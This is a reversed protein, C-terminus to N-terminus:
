LQPSSTGVVEEDPQFGSQISAFISSLSEKRVAPVDDKKDKGWIGLWCGECFTELCLGCAFCCCFVALFAAAIVTAGVALAAVAQGLSMEAIKHLMLHGLAGAASMSLISFVIEAMAKEISHDMHPREREAAERPLFEYQQDFLHLMEKFLGMATGVIAAGAAGARVSELVKYSDHGADRMIKGGIAGDLAGISSYLVGHMAAIGIVRFTRATSMM